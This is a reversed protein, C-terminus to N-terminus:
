VVEDVPPRRFMTVFPLISPLVTDKAHCERETACDVPTSLAMSHGRNLIVSSSATQVAVRQLHSDNSDLDGHSPVNLLSAAARLEFVVEVRASICFYLRM